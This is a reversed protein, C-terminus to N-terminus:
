QTRSLERQLKNTQKLKMTRQEAKLQKKWRSSKPNTQEQKDSIKIHMMLNNTQSRAVKKKCPCKSNYVKKKPHRRQREYTQTNKKRLVTTTLPLGPKWLLVVEGM